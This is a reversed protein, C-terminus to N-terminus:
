VTTVVVELISRQLLLITLMLRFILHPPVIDRCLYGHFKSKVLFITIFTRTAATTQM